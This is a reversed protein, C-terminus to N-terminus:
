VEVPGSGNAHRAIALGAQDAFSQEVYTISGPAAGVAQAVGASGKAGNGVGGVFDSGAGRDWVQPAAVSLYQQFNDTTGSSASRPLVAIEPDPLEAPPHLGAIPPDHCREVSGAVL